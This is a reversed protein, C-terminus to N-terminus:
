NYYFPFYVYKPLIGCDFLVVKGKYSLYICSRGVERGAGLPRIILQDGDIVTDVPRGYITRHM